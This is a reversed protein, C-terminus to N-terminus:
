RRNAFQWVKSEASKRMRTTKDLKGLFSTSRDLHYWRRPLPISPLHSSQFWHFFSLRTLRESRPARRSSGQAWLCVQLPVREHWLWLWLTQVFQASCIAFNSLLLVYFSGYEVSGRCSAQRQLRCRCCYCFTITLILLSVFCLSRESVLSGVSSCEIKSVFCYLGTLWWKRAALYYNLSNWSTGDSRKLVLESRTFYLM